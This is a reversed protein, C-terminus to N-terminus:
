EIAFTQPFSIIHGSEDMVEILLTHSGAPLDDLQISFDLQRSDFLGRVPRLMVTRGGNLSYGAAALVSWQDVATFDVRLSNGSVQLNNVVIEPPTVDILFPESVRTTSLAIEPDNDPIDSATVRVRYLGEPMGRSNFSFFPERLETALTIWEGGPGDQRRMEVTFELNDGNGDVAQWIATLMGPNALRRVQARPRPGEVFNDLNRQQFVAGYDLAVPGGQETVIQSMGVPVVRLNTFVPALNPLQCFLRISHIRGNGTIEKLRYQLYRGPLSQAM